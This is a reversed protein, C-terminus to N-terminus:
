REHFSEATTTIAMSYAGSFGYTDVFCETNVISIEFALYGQSLLYNPCKSKQNKLDPCTIDLSVGFNGSESEEM